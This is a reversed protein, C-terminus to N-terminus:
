IGESGIIAETALRIGGVGTIARYTLCSTTDGRCLAGFSRKLGARSRFYPPRVVVLGQCRAGLEVPRAPNFVGGNPDNHSKRGTEPTISARIDEMNESFVGDTLIKKHEGTQPPQREAFGPTNL